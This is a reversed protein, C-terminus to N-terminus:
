IFKWNPLAKINYMGPVTMEHWKTTILHRPQYSFQINHARHGRFTDEMFQLVIEKNLSNRKKGLSHKSQQIFPLIQLFIRKYHDFWPKKYTQWPLALTKIAKGFGAYQNQYPPM